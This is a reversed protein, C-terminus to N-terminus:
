YEDADRELTDSSCVVMAEVRQRIDPHIREMISPDDPLVTEGIKPVGGAEHGDAIPKLERTICAVCYPFREIVIPPNETTDYNGACDDDTNAACDYRESSPDWFEDEDEDM